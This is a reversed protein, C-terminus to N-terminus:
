ADWWHAKVRKQSASEMITAWFTGYDCAVIRGQYLGFNERKTDAIWMPLKKPLKKEPIPQQVRAQVLFRGLPSISICPALWRRFEPRDESWLWVLWESVNQFEISGEEEVKVVHDRNMACAYVRRAAGYGLEPGLVAGSLESYNLTDDEM